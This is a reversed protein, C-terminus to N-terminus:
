HRSCGRAPLCSRNRGDPANRCAGMRHCGIVAASRGFTKASRGDLVSQIRHSLAPLTFGFIGLEKQLTHM